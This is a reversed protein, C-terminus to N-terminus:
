PLKNGYRLVRVKETTILGSGVVREVMPLAREIDEKADVAEVVM